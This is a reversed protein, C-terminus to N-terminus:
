PVKVTTSAVGFPERTQAVGLAQGNVRIAVRLDGNRGDDLTEITGDAHAPALRTVLVKQATLTVVSGEPAYFTRDFPVPVLQQEIDGTQSTFSILAFHAGEVELETSVPSGAPTSTTKLSVVGHPANTQQRKITSGNKAIEVGLWSTGSVSPSKQDFGGSSDLRIEPQSQATMNQLTLYVEAGAINFEAPVTGAVTTQTPAGDGAISLCSGSFRVGPGGRVTITFNAEGSHLIGPSQCLAPVAMSIVVVVLQHNV